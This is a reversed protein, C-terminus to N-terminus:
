CVIVALARVLRPLSEPIQSDPLALIGLWMPRAGLSIFPAVFLHWLLVDDIKM